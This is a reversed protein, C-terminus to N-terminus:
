NLKKTKWLINRHLNVHKMIRRSPSCIYLEFIPFLKEGVVAPVGERGLVGVVHM